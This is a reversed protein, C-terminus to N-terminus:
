LIDPASPFPGFWVSVKPLLQQFKVVFRSTISKTIMRSFSVKSGVTYFAFLIHKMSGPSWLQSRGALLELHSLLIFFSLHWSSRLLVFYNLVLWLSLNPLSFSYELQRLTFLVVVTLIIDHWRLRSKLISEIRPFTCVGVYRGAIHIADFSRLWIKSLVVWCYIVPHHAVLWDLYDGCVM